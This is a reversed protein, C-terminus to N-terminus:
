LRLEFLLFIKNATSTGVYPFGNRSNSFGNLNGFLLYPINLVIFILKNLVGNLGNILVDIFLM